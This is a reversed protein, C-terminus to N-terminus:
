EIVKQENDLGISVKTGAGVQSVIVFRHGLKRCTTKCLFLGIGTAKKDSRGNYGTFGKQGIRPLDESTIGIGTDEIVLTNGDTHISINGTNTYKLSNSLVQEIVFSLWKEDTLVESSINRLDLRLKKRVFLPAYKRLAGRVIDDLQCRKIVFDSTESELRIYSLVMDVYQEIKFLEITLETNQPNAESQLLLRMAAVPSKIQHAWLTYYDVTDRQRRTFDSLVKQKDNLLRKVTEMYDWEIIKISSPLDCPNVIGNKCLEQLRLHKKYTLTFDVAMVILGVIACLLVAYLIAETELRYLSFVVAFTVAFVCLLIILKRYQRLYAAIFRASRM